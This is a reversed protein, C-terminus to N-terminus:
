DEPDDDWTPKRGQDVYSQLVLTAAAQDVVRRRAPGKVGQERLAREASASSLREDWLIVPVPVRERLRAAFRQANRAAQGQRGDLALPLGMVIEDIRQEVVIHAIREVAEAQTKHEVTQLPVAVAVDDDAVALGTRVSGPDIGLRRM